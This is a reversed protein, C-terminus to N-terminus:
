ETKSFEIIKSGLNIGTVKWGIDMWRAQPNAKHNSWWASHIYASKPLDGVIKAIEDMRMSYPYRDVGALHAALQPYDRQGTSRQMPPRAGKVLIPAEELPEQVETDARVMLWKFEVGQEGPLKSYDRWILEYSGELEIPKERGKATGGAPDSWAMVAPLVRGHELGFEEDARNAAQRPTWYTPNSSLVIAIGENFEQHRVFHEVRQIDKLCDYRGILEAGRHKLRYREGKIVTDIQSKLYKLEIATRWGNEEALLDIHWTGEATHYPVELRISLSPWRRQLEWALAFQFDSESHFVPRKSALSAMVEPIREALVASLM